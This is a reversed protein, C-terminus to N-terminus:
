QMAEVVRMRKKALLFLVVFLTGLMLFAGPVSADRQNLGAISRVIVRGADWFSM